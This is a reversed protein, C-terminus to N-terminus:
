CSAVPTLPRFRKKPPMPAAPAAPAPHQGMTVMVGALEEELARKQGGGATGLWASAQQQAAQLADTYSANSMVHRQHAGTVVGAARQLVSCM